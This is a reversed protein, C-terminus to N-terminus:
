NKYFHSSQNIELLYNTEELLKQEVEVFYKDLDKGKM